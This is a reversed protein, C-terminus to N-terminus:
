EGKNSRATVMLWDHSSFKVVILGHVQQYNVGTLLQIL